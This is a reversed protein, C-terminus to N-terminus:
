TWSPVFQLHGTEKVSILHFNLQETSIKMKFICKPRYMYIMVAHFPCLHSQQSSFHSPTGAEEGGEVNQVKPRLAFLLFWFVMLVLFYSCCFCFELCFMLTLLITCWHVCQVDVLEFLSENTAFHLMVLSMIDILWHITFHGIYNTLPRVM